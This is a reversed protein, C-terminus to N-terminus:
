PQDRLKSTQDKLTKRESLRSVHRLVTDIIIIHYADCISSGTIDHLDRSLEITRGNITSRVAYIYSISCGIECAANASDQYHVTSMNSSM